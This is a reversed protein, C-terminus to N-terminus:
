GGVTKSVLTPADGDVEVIWDIRRDTRFDRFNFTYLDGLISLSVRTGYPIPDGCLITTYGAYIVEPDDMILDGLRALNLYLDTSFVYQYVPEPYADTYGGYGAYFQYEILLSDVFQDGTRCSDALRSSDLPTTFLVELGYRSGCFWNEGSIDQLEIDVTRALRLANQINEVLVSDLRISTSFQFSLRRCEEFTATANPNPTIDPKQPEECSFLTLLILPLLFLITLANKKM